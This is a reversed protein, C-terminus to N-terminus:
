RSQLAASCRVRPPLWSQSRKVPPTHRSIYLFTHLTHQKGIQEQCRPTLRLMEKGTVIHTFGPRIHSAGCGPQLIALLTCPLMVVGQSVKSSTADLQALKDSWLLMEKLGTCEAM